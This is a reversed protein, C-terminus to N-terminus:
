ATKIKIILKFPEGLEEFIDQIAILRQNHTSEFLKEQIDEKSMGQKMYHKILKSCAVSINEIENQLGAKVVLELSGKINQAAAARLLKQTDSPLQNYVMKGNMCERRMPSQCPLIAVSCFVYFGFLLLKKM